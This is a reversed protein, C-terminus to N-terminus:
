RRPMFDALLFPSQGRLNEGGAPHRAPFHRHPQLPVPTIYARYHDLYLLRNRARDREARMGRLRALLPMLQDFSKLGVIDADKLKDM